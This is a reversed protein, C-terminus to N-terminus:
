TLPHPLSPLPHPSSLRSVTPHPLATLHCSFAALMSEGQTYIKEDLSGYFLKGKKTVFTLRAKLAVQGM